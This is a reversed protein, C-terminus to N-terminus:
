FHKPVWISKMTVIIDDVSKCLPGMVPHIKSQPCVGDKATIIAGKYSLRSFTPKFGCVGNFSAPCRISGGIDTGLALPVCNSGVLGGEGGSSGGCSRSHDHPNKACGYINNDTHCYFM